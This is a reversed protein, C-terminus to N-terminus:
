RASVRGPGMPQGGFDHLPIHIGATPSCGGYGAAIALSLLVFFMLRRRATVQTYRSSAKTAQCDLFSASAWMLSSPASRPLTGDTNRWLRFSLPLRGDGVM